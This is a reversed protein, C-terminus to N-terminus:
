TRDDINQLKNAALIRVSIHGTIWHGSDMVYRRIICAMYLGQPRLISLSSILIALAGFITYITTISQM